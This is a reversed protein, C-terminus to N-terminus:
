HFAPLVREAVLELLEILHRPSDHTLGLHVADAGADRWAAATAILQAPDEVRGAAVPAVATFTGGRGAARHAARAQAAQAAFDERTIQWPVWGDGCRGAREAMAPTNGGIWLPPRPQQLPRPSVMMDRWRVFRGSFSSVDNALAAALAELYEESIAARTAHDIGLSRFEPKLHGSGAGIIVRGGSLRDLTAFLKAALLPHRYPLVLVHSMLRVRQTAAAVFALTTAPEYWTAGMSAAYAAPVAVHDSCTVWAYGLRDAARAVAVIEEPGADGEWAQTQTPVQQVVPLGIGFSLARRM